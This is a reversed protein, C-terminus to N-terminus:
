SGDGARAMTTPRGLSTGMLRFRNPMARAAAQAMIRHQIVHIEAAAESWDAQATPGTGIISRLQRALLGTTELAELELDTLLNEGAM